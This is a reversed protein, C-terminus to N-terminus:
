GVEVKKFDEKFIGSYNIPVSQSSCFVVPNNVIERCIATDEIYAWTMFLGMLLMFLIIYELLTPKRFLNKWNHLGKKEIYPGYKKEYWSAKKELEEKSLNENKVM